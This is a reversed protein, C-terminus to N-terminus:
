QWVCRALIDHKREELDDTSYALIYLAHKEESRAQFLKQSDEQTNYGAKCEVGIFRGSPTFGIIDPSGKLGYRVYGGHENPKYAGTNNRWVYCGHLFLWDFCAKVCQGESAMRRRKPKKVAQQKPKLQPLTDELRTINM